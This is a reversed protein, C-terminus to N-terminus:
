AHGSLSFWVGVCGGGGARLGYRTTIAIMESYLLGVGILQGIMGAGGPTLGAAKGVARLSQITRNVALRARVCLPLM